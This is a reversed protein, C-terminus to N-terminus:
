SRRAALKMGIRLMPLMSIHSPVLLENKINIVVTLTANAAIDSPYAAAGCGKMIVASKVQTIVGCEYGLGSNAGTVIVIKGSLDPMQEATWGKAQPM